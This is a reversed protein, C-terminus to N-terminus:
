TNIVTAFMLLKCTKLALWLEPMLPLRCMPSALWLRHEATRCTLLRSALVSLFCFAGTPCVFNLKTSAQFKFRHLEAARPATLDRFYAENSVNGSKSHLAAKYPQFHRLYAKLSVQRAAQVASAALQDNQIKTLVQMDSRQFLNLFQCDHHSGEKEKRNRRWGCSGASQELTGM